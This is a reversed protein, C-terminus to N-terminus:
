CCHVFFSSVDWHDYLAPSVFIADYDGAGQFPQSAFNLM